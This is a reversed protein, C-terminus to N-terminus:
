KGKEEMLPEVMTGPRVEDTGRLIVVDGAQLNGFVEVMTGSRAGKRVPVWEVTNEKVRLVFINETTTVVATAPLFLTPAPRHIPWRVEPFMGAALRHDRNMVDLECPMTRTKADVSQSIRTVVGSFTEQPFAPVTFPVSAGKAISGAYTEPVPVILRLRAIQELRLLGRGQGSGSDPGVVAGPHVNRDTIIGEFPAVIRLYKEM